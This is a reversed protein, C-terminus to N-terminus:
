PERPEPNFHAEPSNRLKQLLFYFLAANATSVMQESLRNRALGDDPAVPEPAAQEATVVPV